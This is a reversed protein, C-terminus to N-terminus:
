SQASTELRPILRVLVEAIHAVFLTGMEATYRQPDHSGIAILGACRNDPLPVVVASGHGRGQPFLFQFEQERLAGCVPQRHKLLGGIAAQADADRCWRLLGAGAPTEARFLILSVQEVGFDQQLVNCFVANLESLSKADLLRLLLKRTLDYLRDNDRANHTLAGLRKRMDINRERLLSVQREVLSVASGSAHGIHLHDLLDPHRKLFDSHSLLYNYVQEDSLTESAVTTDEVRDVM